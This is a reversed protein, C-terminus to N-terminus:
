ATVVGFIATYHLAVAVVTMTHWVEHYGFVRPAPNPFRTALVASGLSYIVGGAALLGLTAPTLARVLTPGAALVAWGMALYLVFGVGHTRDFLALKLVVGVAAATWVVGLLLPGWPRPMALLCIPTYSGAILVYIGAHDLRRLWRRWGVDIGFRHYASSAGFLGALSIAYIAAGVRASTGAAAAILFAGAPLAAFFAAAHIRGRLLPKPLGHVDTTEDM